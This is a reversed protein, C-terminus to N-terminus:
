IAPLLQQKSNATQQKSNATQQKSNATQQKSNFNDANQRDIAIGLYM